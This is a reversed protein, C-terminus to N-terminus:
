VPILIPAHHAGRESGFFVFAAFPEAPQQALGATAAAHRLDRRNGPDRRLGEPLDLGSPSRGRREERHGREGPRQPQGHVLQGSQTLQRAHSPLESLPTAHGM